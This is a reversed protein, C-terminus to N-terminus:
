RMCRSTSSPQLQRHPSNQAAHYSVEIEGLAATRLAGSTRGIAKVQGRAEELVQGPRESRSDDVSRPMIQLPIVSASEM